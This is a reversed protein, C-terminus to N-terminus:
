IWNDTELEPNNAKLEALIEERSASLDDNKLIELDTNETMKEPNVKMLELEKKALDHTLNKLSKDSNNIFQFNNVKSYLKEEIINKLITIL